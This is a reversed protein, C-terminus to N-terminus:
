IRPTLKANLRVVARESKEGMGQRWINILIGVAVLCFVLNSGGYSVFPLPLGKNPLLSTTVGINVAAQLAILIVLGAGLLTGFRDRSQVAIITGCLIILLYCLVIALTARLGLEEGIMPLIFDTHAFPVYLMKQRGNGLGLGDVGGSGFAILAQWQQLGADQKYKELNLFAMIRGFRETMQTAAWLMGIVGLGALPGVYFLNTGAVFMMLLMTGAILATSGLDVERAILGLMVSVSLLPIIFGRLFEGSQAAYKSFWHALFVVAALKALESPQFSLFRLNIWRWSGNIKMGIPPVFCLALLVVAALFWLFWTKQWWHYDVMAAVVCAILGVGLWIAQRKVFYVPDGHSDQAFASTSFLMVIGLVLMAAVCIVLLYVSKRHM